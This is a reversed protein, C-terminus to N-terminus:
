KIPKSNKDAYKNKKLNGKAFHYSRFLYIILLFSYSASFYVLMYYVSHHIYNGLFLSIGIAFVFLIHMFFDEKQHGTVIYMYSLPSIIFRLFFMFSLIQSYEGAEAWKNGFVFAFIEPGWLYIFFFPISALSFLLILTKKFIKLANGNKLFDDSAQQKFVQGVSSSIISSPLGLM